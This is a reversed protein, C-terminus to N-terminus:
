SLEDVDPSDPRLTVVSQRIYNYIVPNISYTYTYTNGYPRMAACRNADRSGWMVQSNHCM